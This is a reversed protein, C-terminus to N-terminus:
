KKHKFCLLVNLKVENIKSYFILFTFLDHFLDHFILLDHRFIRM